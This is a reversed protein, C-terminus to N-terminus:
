SVFHYQCPQIYRAHAGSGSTHDNQPGTGSSPSPGTHRYWRPYASPDCMTWHCIGGAEFECDYPGLLPLHSVNKVVHYWCKTDVCRLFNKKSFRTQLGSRMEKSTTEKRDTLITSYVLLFVSGAYGPGITGEFYETKLHMFVLNRTFNLKKFKWVFPRAGLSTLVNFTSCRYFFPNRDSM